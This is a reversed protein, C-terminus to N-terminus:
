TVVVTVKDSPRGEGADNVGAVTVEVSVGPSQKFTRQTEQSM